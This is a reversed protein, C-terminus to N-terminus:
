ITIEGYRDRFQDLHRRRGRAAPTLRDWETLLDDYTLPHFHPIADGVRAAMDAIEARHTRVESFEPGNAPEWYVYVLHTTRGNAHSNLALAHKLLQEIGLHRPNLKGALSADFVERWGGRLMARIVPKHYPTRWEVPKHPALTETLKSEIGVLRSKTQLVCDLNAEGGGHAIRLKHELSLPTDFGGLGAIRLKHEEGLWGGFANMALAASSYPAHARRKGSRTPKLEGGAGRALQARLVDVQEASFSPLLNDTFRRTHTGGVFREVVPGPLLDGLRQTIARQATQQLDAIV